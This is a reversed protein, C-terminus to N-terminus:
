HYHDILWEELVASISNLVNSTPSIHLTEQSWQSLVLLLATRAKALRRSISYQPVNLQQAIQQQTLKQRYYLEMMQVVIAELQGIAGTLVRSLEQQQLRRDDQEEQLILGELLTESEDGVVDDQLEGSMELQNSRPLNLSTVNPYLSSRIQKACNTLWREVLEPSVVLHTNTPPRDVNYFDSVKQWLDRDPAKRQRVEGSKMQRYAREFGVWAQIYQEITEDGLGNMHLVQQLRKRSTKLLLSWDSCIDIERHRRLADRIINSFAIRSYTKLSATQNPVFVALIKPLDVIAIQFCDALSYRSNAVKPMAKQSAWYCSEQLYATLHDQSRCHGKIELTARWCDHWYNAWDEVSIPATVLQSRINQFNRKLKTDTLWGKVSNTEFDLFTSFIDVLIQRSYMPM